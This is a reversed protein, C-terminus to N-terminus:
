YQGDLSYFGETELGDPCLPSPTEFDCLCVLSRLKIKRFSFGSKIVVSSLVM